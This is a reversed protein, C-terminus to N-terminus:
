RWLSRQSAAGWGFRSSGQAVSVVLPQPAGGPFDAAQQAATWVFWPSAVVATRVVAEGDRIDVRYTETEEALPPEIDWGDGGRRARRIWRLVLDGGEGAELSLHAPTWPRLALGRWVLSAEAMAAGGAPGGAPAARWILPLGRESEATEARVLGEGLLVVSAGAVTLPAMAADSGAQGRLLGSLTWTDADVAEATVFQLIEWDGTSTRLALANAGGLVAGLPRSQPNGGEIRVTLRAAEDLRHMPGAVLDTLTEGVGAPRTLRARLTLSDADGGAHIDLDRWPELGAAVLPRADDEAGPLPPLDLLFFAPPGMPAAPPPTTWDPPMASGAAAPEVPQLTARPREDRDLRTVRWVRADDEFAVRDGAELRLATLPSLHATLTDRAAEGAALVRRGVREVLATAGVVPLDILSTGGGSAPDRRVTLAGLRYDATDDIFRLRLEDPPTELARGEARASRGDPLALDALGLSAAVPGDRAILTARGDREGADFAFVLSLPELADRLRMPSEVVYGTLVGGVDGPDLDVDAREALAKVLNGLPAAGTRGNLWHGLTWNPGDAWVAARAPFDPFPRADWCWASMAAVMPGGYLPSVPNNAPEAFHDLVAELARRQVADDRAGTSFPPLRSESSKPDIFLNPANAGRDVAPCGFEVLRIPKSRPVWATPTESRVGGPRDHHPSSWWGILDKPRFVWAEDGGGDTIATRLGALRDAESAYFWDFGEGSAVDLGDLGEGARQDALPPYFDIGVFDIDPDAWLPDLHFLVDGSGDDPQRGFYESWDAAYGIATESGLLVRCDAALDRLAAVAPFSDGDRLATVGRLESGILFGDVGGAMQALRAHHLVMRRLGWDGPGSYAVTQGNATFHTPQAAGFFGAVDAAEGSIRGRWPYGPCDMLIFPYLVVKLGRAKLEAIAQLLARDAPTGGYAPGGGHHSVLHAGGRGVGGAQWAWPLTAKAALEVGPRIQCTGADLSTGFWASVLTVEELNPLQAQLQDLSVLLDPRGDGSNVNEMSLRTLGSRRVIADTAYVFEGAGPILCIGKLSTELGGVGPPRRYVEVSIQPPRNGWAELPLDEFVLCACGRYAPAAGEIAEILPDPTQAEGGPHLRHSVGSLDMPKGDAWIRGIGDIPGECLAVAFSLSYRYEVTKPGGKGGGSQHEIRKERFRAAWIVQGSVRARGFVAAMPAGEAASMLRVASLRPGAQRPPLLANIAARDLTAGLYSGLAAGIPGGLTAGISTLVVQAM